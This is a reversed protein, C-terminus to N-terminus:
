AHQAECSSAANSFAMKTIKITPTLNAHQLPTEGGVQDEEGEEIVRSTDVKPTELFSDM